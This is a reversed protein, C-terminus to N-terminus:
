LVMEKEIRIRGEEFWRVVQVLSKCQQVFIRDRLEESDMGPARYFHTQLLPKGSDIGSDVFHVTSGLIRAGSQVSDEFGRMGPCATLISPHFNIIRGEVEDLLQGVLLRTYFSILVDIKSDALVSLLKSSFSDNGE